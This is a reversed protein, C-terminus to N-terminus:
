ARVAISSDPSHIPVYVFGCDFHRQLQLAGLALLWGRDLDMKICSRKVPCARFTTKTM